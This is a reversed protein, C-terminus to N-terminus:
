SKQGDLDWYGADQSKAEWSGLMLCGAGLIQSGIVREEKRNEIKLSGFEL